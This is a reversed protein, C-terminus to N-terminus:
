QPGPKRSMEELLKRFEEQTLPKENSVSQARARLGRLKGAEVEVVLEPNILTRSRRPEFYSGKMVLVFRAASPRTKDPEPRVELVQFDGRLISEADFREAQEDTASDDLAAPAAGLLELAGSDAANKLEM